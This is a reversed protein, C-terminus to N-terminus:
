DPLDIKKRFAKLRPDGRILALEPFTLYIRIREDKLAFMKELYEFVRDKDGLGACIIVQQNPREPHATLLQEAEDRRGTRGYVFGLFGDGITKLDRFIQIAEATRGQFFRARGLFQRTVPYRPDIALVKEAHAASEDYHGASILVFALDWHVEAALPDAKLAVRLQQLAEDIRGLEWLVSIAYDRHATSNNPDLRLAQHFSHEALNWQHSRAYALGLANYSEAFM